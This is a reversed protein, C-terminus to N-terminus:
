RGNGRPFGSKRAAACVAQGLAIGGDNTPVQAHTYVTFGAEKLKATLGSLLTANQFSGGSLAVECLGTEERLSRCLSALVHIMTDHFRRSVVEPPVGRALDQVIDQILPDTRLVQLGQHDQIDWAYQGNSDPNQVMELEVPAQGEYRNDRCVGCLAAVADFLRGCSSTLPSRIGKEVLRTVVQAEGLDLQRVFPIPLDFLGEGYVRYLLSVAMRWPHRAAADGGPLRAQQLHAARRYSALDAVLAEGGWITGDEGLGTGDMALGIVPGHVGNEAMVSVIHAHHHQVVVTSLDNRERAYQSSLYDPHLDCALVAPEIQLIRELHSVTLHFFDLTELNEMDGVHQSLFARNEKTLCITNKLEAGVALVPPLCAWSAPLFIPVPVYGRSRRCQRLAGDVVRVISDDSRLHIERDHVLFADAVGSLREFADRNDITIPEESLNGSTMVLARFEGERLLLDHLPTYPLMIGFFRNRPAVQLALGHNEQKELLVIPRQISCLVEAEKDDIHALARASALDRVMLAFPKEERHKRQRLRAVAEPNVADVALHFGGLGKVALIDGRRLRSITEALPDDCPIKAGQEDHMALLPGCDPCANPQAHFRRDEPDEYEALCAPCMTFRNMTTMPRDYPIDRIITYRPGCNTCNIFPYRYRRESPDHLERLCDECVCVDPSILATRVDGSRSERIEFRVEGQLPLGDTREVSSIHALPPPEVRLARFFGDIASPAGEVELDVGQPTNVVHGALHLRKALQYVFPRFGVGQVIGRVSGRSRSTLGEESSRSALRVM